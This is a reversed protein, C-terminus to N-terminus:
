FRGDLGAAQNVLMSSFRDCKMKLASDTIFGAPSAHHQSKQEMQPSLM